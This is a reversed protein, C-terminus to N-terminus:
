SGDGSAGAASAEGGPEPTEDLVRVEFDETVPNALLKRAMEQGQQLAKEAEEAAVDVLLLRGARVREAETFDLNRLAQHIAQGEPDLLAPRPTVRIELRYRTM